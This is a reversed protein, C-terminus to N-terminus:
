CLYKKGRTALFFCSKRLKMLEAKRGEQALIFSESSGRIVYTLFRCHIFLFLCFIVSFYGWSLRWFWIHSPFSGGVQSLFKMPSCSGGSWSVSVFERVGLQLWTLDYGSIRNIVIVFPGPYTSIDTNFNLLAVANSHRSKFMVLFLM